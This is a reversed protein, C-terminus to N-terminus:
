RKKDMRPKAVGYHKMISTPNRQKQLKRQKYRNYSQTAGYAIQGTRRKTAVEAENNKAARQEELIERYNRPKNKPPKAGLKIALAVSAQQKNKKDLGSIGFNIIEKRAKSIDFVTPDQMKKPKKRPADSFIDDIDDEDDTSHKGDEQALPPRLRPAKRKELAAKKPEFVIVNFSEAAKENLVASARTRIPAFNGAGCSM